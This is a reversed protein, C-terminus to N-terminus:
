EQDSSIARVDIWERQFLAMLASQRLDSTGEGLVYQREHTSKRDMLDRPM